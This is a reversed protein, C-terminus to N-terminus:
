EENRGDVSQEIRAFQYLEDILKPIEQILQDVLKFSENVKGDAGLKELEQAISILKPCFFYGIQNKLKHASEQLEESDGSRSAQRLMASSQPFFKLFIEVLELLLQVDGDIFRRLAQRNILNEVM